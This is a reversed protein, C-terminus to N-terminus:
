RELGKRSKLDYRDGATLIHMRMDRSSFGADPNVRIDAGTADYIIVPGEGVVEMTADPKVWVATSEDIGIGILDPYECVLSILRNHRKRRIFHQDIIASRIFGFGPVTVINRVELTSFERGEEVERREDGTIMIGSMVAAGASTGGIVAGGAYIEHLKRLVPTGQLVETLRTQVGGSFFVGGAGELLATSEERLAEDRSLNRVEVDKAGLEKLEAAQEPGVEDPVASAMPFIVIRGSRHSAALSVFTKMMEASRVGGGIIFLHGGSEGATGALSAGLMMMFILWLGRKMVTRRSLKKM